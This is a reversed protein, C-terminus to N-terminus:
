IRVLEIETLNIFLDNVDVINIRIVCDNDYALNCVLDTNQDWFLMVTPHMGIDNDNILEDM